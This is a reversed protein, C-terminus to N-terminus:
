PSTMIDTALTARIQRCTGGIALAHYHSINCHSSQAFRCVTSRIVGLRLEARDVPEGFRHNHHELSM